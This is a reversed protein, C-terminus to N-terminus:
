MLDAKVLKNKRINRLGRNAGTSETEVEDSFMWGKVEFEDFSSVKWRDGNRMVVVCDAIKDVRTKKKMVSGHILLCLRELPIRIGRISLRTTMFICCAILFAPVKLAIHSLQSVGLTM